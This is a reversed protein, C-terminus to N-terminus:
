YNNEINSKTVYNENGSEIFMLKFSDIFPAVLLTYNVIHLNVTSNVQNTIVIPYM